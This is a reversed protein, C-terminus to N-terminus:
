YLIVAHMQVFFFIDLPLDNSKSEREREHDRSISTRTSEEIKKKKICKIYFKNNNRERTTFFLPLDSLHFHDTLVLYM